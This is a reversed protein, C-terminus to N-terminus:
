INEIRFKELCSTNKEIQIVKSENPLQSYDDSTGQANRTVKTPNTGKSPDSSRWKKYYVKIVIPVIILLIVIVSLIILAIIVILIIIGTTINITNNPVLAINVHATTYQIGSQTERLLMYSGENDESFLSIVYPLDTINTLVNQILIQIMLCQSCSFTVNTTNELISIRQPSPFM